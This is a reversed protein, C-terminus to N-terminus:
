ISKKNKKLTFKGESLYIKLRYLFHLICLTGFIISLEVHWYLLNTKFLDLAMIMGFIFSPILGFLMTSNWIFDHKPKVLLKMSLFYLIVTMLFPLLVNYKKIAKFVTKQVATSNASTPSADTLTNLTGIKYSLLLEDAKLSHNQGRDAKTNYDETADTGCWSRIDFERDHIPLYATVDYVDDAIILWCDTASGHQVVEELTYFSAARATSISFIFLLFIIFILDIKKM